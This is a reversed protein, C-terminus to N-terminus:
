SSMSVIDFLASVLMVAHSIWVCDSGVPVFEHSPSDKYAFRNMQVKSDWVQNSRSITEVLLCKKLCLTM